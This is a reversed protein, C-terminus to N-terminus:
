GIPTRLTIEVPDWSGIQAGETITRGDSPRMGGRHTERGTPAAIGGGVPHFQTAGHRRPISGPHEGSGTIGARGLRHGGFRRGIWWRELGHEGLEQPRRPRLGDVGNVTLPPHQGLDPEGVAVVDGCEHLEGAGGRGEAPPTALPHLVDHDGEAARHVHEALTVADHQVRAEIGGAAVDARHPAPEARVTHQAGGRRGSAGGRGLAGSGATGPAVAGSRVGRPGAGNPVAGHPVAGAVGTPAPV